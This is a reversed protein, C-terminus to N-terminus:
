NLEDAIMKGSLVASEITSPYGTNVYDGALFLNPINTKWSPRSKTSSIDSLFTARKEKIVKFNKKSFKINSLEVKLEPFFKILEDIFLELIQQNSFNLFEDASSKVITLHNEHFFVWHIISDWLAYFHNSFEKNSIKLHLNIISQYDLRLNIDPFLKQVISPHVALIFYDGRYTRGERDSVEVALDNKLVINHIRSNKIVRVGNNILYNEAPIILSELLSKKPIIFRPNSKNEVFMKKLIFLFVNASTKQIPTNLASEIVLKWFNDILNESQNLKQLFELTTLEETLEDDLKDIKSFFNILSIKESLNLNKFGLFSILSNVITDIKLSWERKNKDRFLIEFEKQFIFNEEAKFKTILDLTSEYGKILLHQGNDLYLNFQNDFFSKARGGLQPASEILTIDFNKERLYVASSIGALGGGVIVVKKM